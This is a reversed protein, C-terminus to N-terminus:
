ERSGPCEIGPEAFPAGSGRLWTRGPGPEGCGMSTSSIAALRGPAFARLWRQRVLRRYAAPTGGTWRRFARHFTATDSFGLREAIESVRYESETLLRLAMAERVTDVVARHTVGEDRLRRQLTRVSLGLQRAARQVSLPREFAWGEVVRALRQSASVEAPASRALAEPEHAIDAVETSRSSHLTSAAASHFMM